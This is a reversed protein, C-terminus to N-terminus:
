FKGRLTNVFMKLTNWVYTVMVAWLAFYIGIALLLEFM